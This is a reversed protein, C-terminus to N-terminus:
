EERCHAKESPLSLHQKFDPQSQRELLTSVMRHLIEHLSLHPANCKKQHCADLVFPRCFDFKVRQPKRDKKFSTGVCQQEIFWGFPKKTDRRIHVHGCRKGKQLRGCTGHTEFYSKCYSPILFTYPVQPLNREGHQWEPLVIDLRTRDWRGANTLYAFLDWTSTSAATSSDFDGGGGGSVSSWVKVPDTNDHQNVMLYQGVPLEAMHELLRTLPHFKVVPSEDSSIITDLSMQSWELPASAIMSSSASSPKLRGVVISANARLWSQLWMRARESETWQEPVDAAWGYDIKPTLTIVHDHTKISSSNNNNNCEGHQQEVCTWSVRVLVSLHSGFSWKHYEYSRAQEHEHNTKKLHAKMFRKAFIALKQRGSLSAPVLAKDFYVHKQSGRREICVPITWSQRFHGIGDNDFLLSLTSAAIGIDCAHKQMAHRAITDSSIPRGCSWSLPTDDSPRPPPLPPLLPVSGVSTIRSVHKPRIETSYCSSPVLPIDSMATYLQPYLAKADVCRRRLHADVAEQISEPLATLVLMDQKSIAEFTKRFARREDLVLQHLYTWTDREQPSLSLLEPFNNQLAIIRKQKLELYKSHDSETLKTKRHHLIDDWCSTTPEPLKHFINEKQIKIEKSSQAPLTANAALFAQMVSGHVSFYDYEEETLWSTRKSDDVLPLPINM